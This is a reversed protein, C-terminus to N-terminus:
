QRDARETKAVIMKTQDSDVFLLSFHHDTHDSSILLLSLHHNTHDSTLLLLSFHHNILDFTLLLLSLHHDTYVSTLMLLSVHHDSTVPILSLDHSWVSPRQYSKFLDMNHDIPSGYLMRGNIFTKFIFNNM